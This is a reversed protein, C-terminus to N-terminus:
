ETPLNGNPNGDPNGDPNADAAHRQAAM